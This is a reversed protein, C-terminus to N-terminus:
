KEVQAVMYFAYPAFIFVTVNKLTINSKDLLIENSQKMTEFNPLFSIHNVVIMTVSIVILLGLLSAM